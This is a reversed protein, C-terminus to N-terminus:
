NLPKQIRAIFFNHLIETITRYLHSNPLHCNLIDLAVVRDSILFSLNHSIIHDNRLNKYEQSLFIISYNWNDDLVTTLNELPLDIFISFYVVKHSISFSLNQLTTYDNRLNKYEQSTFIIFYNWNDDLVTTLNEFPLDFFISLYM